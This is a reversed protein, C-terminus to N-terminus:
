SRHPRRLHHARRLLDADPERRLYRVRVPEAPGLLERQQDLGEGAVGVEVAGRDPEVAGHAERGFLLPGFLPPGFLLPGFLLPSYRACRTTACSRPMSNPIKM